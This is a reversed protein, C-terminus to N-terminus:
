HINCYTKGFQVDCDLNRNLKLLNNVKDISDKLLKETKQEEGEKIELIIEDHFQATLQPRQQLIFGIWLDFCYVGTGQNLTSFIDKESRLSYWLRSVPNYLWNGKVKVAKSIEKISWNRKWYAKYIKNADNERIGLQRALTTVGCGYTCAYNGGKYNHRIDSISKDTGDKYAQVQEPTVAGASLALDLHPDFDDTMMEKVYDPDFHWMYHQKTRDELSSMDSGCLVNGERSTFLERIEKGYLKRASPINVCVAHRFRLTNTFGRVQAQVYGDEDCANILNNVVAIRSKVVTMTELECLYPHEKVLTQVSLSLTGDKFKVLPLKENNKNFYFADPKWGLDFLLSKIQTMSTPNPDNYGVIVEIWETTDFPLNNIECLEKWKEGHASLTGDNKYPKAPRKRKATKPVKPMKDFLIQYSKDYEANLHDLLAKAKDVDLKWKSHEQLRTCNMKHTLYKILHEYEGSYLKELYKKQAEWLKFNIKVDEECRHIYTALDANEWDEVEPKPVGFREGWAELGHKRYDHFLYWSLALTDVLQCPIKTDLIREIVPADYRIFNHGILRDNKNLSAIFILMDKYESLTNITEGDHISMCHIKTPNVGDTEIDVLFDVLLRWTNQLTNM